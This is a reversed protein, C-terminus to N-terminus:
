LKGETSRSSSDWEAGKFQLARFIIVRLHLFVRFGFIYRVLSPRLVQSCKVGQRDVKRLDGVRGWLPCSIQSHTVHVLLDDLFDANCHGLQIQVEKQGSEPIQVKFISM